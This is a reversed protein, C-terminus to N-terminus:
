PQDKTAAFAHQAALSDGVEASAQLADTETPADSRQGAVMAAVIALAIAVGIAQDSIFSCISTM